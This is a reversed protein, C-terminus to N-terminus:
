VSRVEAYIQHDRLQNIIQQAHYSPVELALRGIQTQGLSEFTGATVDAGMSAALSLVTAGTPVGPRSTFIVDLLTTDERLDADEVAPAPVLERALPSTPDSVVEEVAGTQIVRGHGLLTVADCIERVVAMEHTIVVVTVGQSERIDRLLELIQRTSETDLASTPEDCLLVAPSDALARAIGVRQRQGGSLQSPYSDGRGALGVLALLEDVRTTIQDKPVGALKLPYGINQAATRSDLLNASQFVMGIRRRAERLEKGKLIALDLGDVVINGESPHELATLCRILTSKGAGSQGVIGHISGREVRLTVNDLAVVENGGKVSYVKRVGRLDIM